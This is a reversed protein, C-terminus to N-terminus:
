PQQAVAYFGAGAVLTVIATVTLLRKMIAEEKSRELAVRPAATTQGM